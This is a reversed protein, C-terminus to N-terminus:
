LDSARLGHYGVDEADDECDDAPLVLYKRPNHDPVFVHKTPAKANPYDYIVGDVTKGIDNPNQTLKLQAYCGKPPTTLNDATNGLLVDIFEDFAADDEYFRSHLGM